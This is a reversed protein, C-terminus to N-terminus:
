PKADCLRAASVGLQVAACATESWELMVNRALWVMSCREAVVNLRVAARWADDMVATWPRWIMSERPLGVTSTSMVVVSPNNLADHGDPADM